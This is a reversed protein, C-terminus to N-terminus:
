SAAGMQIWTFSHGAALSHLHSLRPLFLSLVQFRWIPFAGVRALHQGEELLARLFPRREPPRGVESPLDALNAM